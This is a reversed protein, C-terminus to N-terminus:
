EAFTVRGADVDIYTGRLKDAEVTSRFAEAEAKRRFSKRRQRNDLDRYNVVYRPTGDNAKTTTLSAM